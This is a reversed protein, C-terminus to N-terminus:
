FRAMDEITRGHDDTENWFKISEFGNRGGYARVKPGPAKGGGVPITTWVDTGAMVKDVVEIVDAEAPGTRWTNTETDALGWRVRSVQGSRGDIHVAEIVHIEAM